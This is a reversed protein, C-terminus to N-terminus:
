RESVQGTAVLSSDDGILHRKILSAHSLPSRVDYVDENTNYDVLCISEGMRWRERFAELEVKHRSLVQQYAPLYIKLRAEVYTLLPTGQEAVLNHPDQHGLVKGHLM